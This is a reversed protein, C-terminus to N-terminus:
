RGTTMMETEPMLTMKVNMKESIPLHETTMTELASQHAETPAAVTMTVITAQLDNTRIPVVLTTGGYAGVGREGGIWM